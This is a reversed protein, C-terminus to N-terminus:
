GARIHLTGKHVGDRCKTWVSISASNKCNPYKPPMGKSRVSFILNDWVSDFYDNKEIIKLGKPLSKYDIELVKDAPYKSPGTGTGTFIFYNLIPRFYNKHKSFPSNPNQNKVDETIKGALRLEWYKSIMDDLTVINSKVHQCATEFGPRATHNVIAAPSSNTEKLSYKVCNISIDAKSRSKSKSLCLKSRLTRINRNDLATQAEKKWRTNQLNNDDSLETIRGFVTNSEKLDKERILFAKLYYESDEGANM